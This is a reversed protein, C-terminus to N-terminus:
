AAKAGLNAVLYNVLWTATREDRETVSAGYLPVIGISPTSGPGTFWATFEVRAIKVTLSGCGDDNFDRYHDIIAAVVPEAVVKFGDEDLAHGIAMRHLPYDVDAIEEAGVGLFEVYRSVPGLAADRAEATAYMEAFFDTEMVASYDEYRPDTEPIGQDLLPAYAARLAARSCYTDTM